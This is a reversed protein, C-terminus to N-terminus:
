QPIIECKPRQSRLSPPVSPNQHNSRFKLDIRSAIAQFFHSDQCVEVVSDQFPVIVKVRFNWGAPDGRLYSLGCLYPPLPTYDAVKDVNPAVYAICLARVYMCCPVQTSGPSCIGLHSFARCFQSYNSYSKAKTRPLRSPGSTRKSIITEM